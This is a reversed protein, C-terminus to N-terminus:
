FKLGVRVGFERPIGPAGTGVSTNMNTYYEEQTLNRAFLSISWNKARWGVAANLLGFSKQQYLPRNFDDFKTNGLAVYELRAFFGAEIHFDVAALADFEPVFPPTVNNLSAGTVPDTYETLRAHTWGISGLFDLQPLLAYRTEFETGYTVARNANFVAYDTDTISREVQYDHISNYFWDLNATLRGDLWQIKVGIETSLDKEAKYPIFRPDATYAGFGGPKFAYTSKAYLLVNDNVKFDVGIQPTVHVWSDEMLVHPDRSALSTLTLTDTITPPGPFGAITTSTVSNTTALGVNSADRTITREIYDFRAGASLTLPSLGKYSTGAYFAFDKEDIQHVTLGDFNILSNSLTVSNAVLNVTGLGPIVTPIITTTLTTSPQDFVVNHLGIGHIESFAGYMGVNWDWLANKNNNSFRFEQSWIDQSQSLTTFGGPVATFDLDTTYPDLNFRRHATVSLFRYDSGEYAIRLAENDMNRKQEGPVDSTVTYFGTTRGLSTLRPAGDNYKDYSGTLSIELDQSPKWFLGGNAGWHRESDPRDGTFPNKLYGDREDYQGGLRFGLSGDSTLPGMLHGDVEHSNYSAYEYNIDGQLTDGPRVSRVNILGAYTNRGVVFPQPGRLVEVSNIGSLQQAYSFTEGFPVDDVYVTTAPAGFFVTNALGRTSYVDGFSRSGSDTASMNPAFRVIDQPERMHFAEVDSSSFFTASVPKSQPDPLAEGIVKVEPLKTVTTDAQAPPNAPAQQAQAICLSGFPLLLASALGTALSRRHSTYAFMRM